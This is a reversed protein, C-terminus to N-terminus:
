MPQELTRQSGGARSRGSVAPESIREVVRAVERESVGSRREAARAIDAQSIIGCCCEADDVVLVRRVQRDTMIREVEKLSTSPSCCDPDPTMLERVPTDPGKGKAVGRLAIDRDTVVGVVRNTDRAEVVPVCGCDHDAMLQAVGRAPEDPTVCVPNPTMIEQAKM